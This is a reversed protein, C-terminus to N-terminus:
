SQCFAPCTAPAALVLGLIGFFFLRPFASALTRQFVFVSSFFFPLLSSLRLSSRLVVQFPSPPLSRPIGPVHVASIPFFLPLLFILEILAARRRRFSPNGQRPFCFRLFSDPSFFRRVLICFSSFCFSLRASPIPPCYLPVDRVPGCLFLGRALEDLVLTAFHGAV